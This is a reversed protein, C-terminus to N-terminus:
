RSPQAQPHLLPTAESQTTARQAVACAASSLHCCRVLLCVRTYTPQPTYSIVHLAYDLVTCISEQLREQRPLHVHTTPTRVLSNQVTPANHRTRVCAFSGSHLVCTPSAASRSAMAFNSSSTHATCWLPSTLAHTLRDTDHTHQQQPSPSLSLSLVAHPLCATSSRLRCTPAVGRTHPCSPTRVSVPPVSACPSLLSICTLM